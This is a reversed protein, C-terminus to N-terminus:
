ETAFLSRMEEPVIKVDEIFVEGEENSPTLRVLFMKGNEFTLLEYNNYSAGATTFTKLEEFDSKQVSNIRGESFLRNFKEYDQNDISMKMKHTVNLANDIQVEKSSCGLLTCLLVLSLGLLIIRSRM